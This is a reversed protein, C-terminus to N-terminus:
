ERKKYKRFRCSSVSGPVLLRRWQRTVDTCVSGRLCPFVQKETETLGMGLIKWTRPRLKTKLTNASSIQSHFTARAFIMSLKRLTVERMHWVSHANNRVADKWFKPLQEVVTWNASGGSMNLKGDRDSKVFTTGKTESLNNDFNLSAIVLSLPYHFTKRVTSLHGTWGKGGMGDKM